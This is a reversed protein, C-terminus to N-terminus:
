KEYHAEKQSRLFLGMTEESHDEYTIRITLFGDQLDFSIQDLALINQGDGPSINLDAQTFLEQLYGDHCYIRTYYTRGNIEEQLYLTDGTGETEMSAFFGVFIGDCRDNQHIRTTLYQITTRQQFSQQDRQVLKKYLDAGTLLVTVICTAFLVLVLLPLLSHARKKHTITNM